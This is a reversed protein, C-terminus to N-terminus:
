GPPSHRQESSAAILGAVSRFRGAANPADPALRASPHQEDWRKYYLDFEVRNAEEITLPQLNSYRTTKEGCLFCFKYRDDDPWSECGQDCRRGLRGNSPSEAQM